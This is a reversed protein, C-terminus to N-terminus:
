SIIPAISAIDSDVLYQRHDYEAQAQIKDHETAFQSNTLARLDRLTYDQIDHRM